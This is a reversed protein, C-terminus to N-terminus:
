MDNDLNVMCKEQQSTIATRKWLVIVEVLTTVMDNKHIVVDTM